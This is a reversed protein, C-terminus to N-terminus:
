YISLDSSLTQDMSDYVEQINELDGDLLKCTACLCNTKM